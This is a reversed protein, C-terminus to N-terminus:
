GPVTRPARGPGGGSAVRRRVGEVCGRMMRDHNWTLVPRAVRSLAGLLGPVVVDQAFDLRTGGGEPRLEFRVTGELDGEVGVELVDPRNLVETLVLQLTYPLASRCLVLGRGEGLYGVAVVQPWWEVYREVDVLVERVREPPADVHWRDRFSYTSTPVPVM